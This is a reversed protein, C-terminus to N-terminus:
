EVLIGYENKLRDCVNCLRLLPVADKLLVSLVRGQVIIDDYSDDFCM